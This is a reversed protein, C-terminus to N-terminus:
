KAESWPCPYLYLGGIQNTHQSYFMMKRQVNEHATVGQFLWVPYGFKESMSDSCWKAFKM